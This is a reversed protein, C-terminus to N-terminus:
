PVGRPSYAVLVGFTATRHAESAEPGRAWSPDGAVDLVDSAVVGRGNRTDLDADPRSM